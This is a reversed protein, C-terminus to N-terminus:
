KKDTETDSPSSSLWSDIAGTASNSQTMFMQLYRTAGGQPLAMSYRQGAAASAPLTITALAVGSTLASSANAAAHRLELVGAHASMVTNIQINWYVTQGEGPSEALTNGWGDKGAAGLDLINGFYEGGAASMALTLADGLELNKDIIM